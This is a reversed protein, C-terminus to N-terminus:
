FQEAAEDTPGEWVGKRHDARRLKAAKKGAPGDVGLQADRGTSHVLDDGGQEILASVLPAIGQGRADDSLVPVSMRDAAGCRKDWTLRVDMSFGAREAASPRYWLLVPDLWWPVAVLHGRYRAADVATPFGEEVTKEALEDPVPALVQADAFEATFADDLSILD